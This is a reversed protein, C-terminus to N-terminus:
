YWYSYEISEKQSSCGLFCGLIKKLILDTKKLATVRLYMSSPSQMGFYTVPTQLSRYKYPDYPYLSVEFRSLLVGHLANHHLAVFNIVVNDGYFM